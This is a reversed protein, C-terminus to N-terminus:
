SQADAPTFVSRLEPKVPLVDLAVGEDGGGGGDVVEAVERIEQRPLIDLIDRSYEGLLMRERPCDCWDFGVRRLGRLVTVM